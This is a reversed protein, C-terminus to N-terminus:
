ISISKYLLIISNESHFGHNFKDCYSDSYRYWKKNDNDIPCLATYHGYNLGGSHEIVCELKYHSTNNDYESKLDLEEPYIINNYIYEDDVSRGFSIILYKPLTYIFTKTYNENNKCNSCSSNDTKKEKKFMYLIKELKLPSNKNEKALDYISLELMNYANFKILSNGCIKCKKETKLIGYFLDLLFSYGRRLYFKKYFNNYPNKDEENEINLKKTKIEKNGTEWFLGDIFNSIFENADEQHGELYREDLDGMIRKLKQPNIILNDDNSKEIKNLIEKFEIILKGKTSCDENYKNINFIEDKLENIRTLLQLSSNLYCNNGINQFCYIKKRTKKINLDKEQKENKPKKRNSESSINKDNAIQGEKYIEKKNQKPKEEVYSNLQNQNNKKEIFNIYDDFPLKDNDNKLLSEIEEVDNNENRGPFNLGGMNIINILNNNSSIKIDKNLLLNDPSNKQKNENINNKELFYNNIKLINKHGFQNINNTKILKNDNEEQNKIKKNIKYEFKVIKLIENFEKRKDLKKDVKYEFKDIKLTENFKKKKDIKRDKIFKIIEEIFNEPIDDKEILSNIYKIKQKKSDNSNLYKQSNKYDKLYQNVKYDKIKKYEKNTDNEKNNKIQNIKSQNLEKNNTIKNTIKNDILNVLKSAERKEDKILKRNDKNINININKPNEYQEYTIRYRKNQLLPNLEQKKEEKNIFSKRTKNLTNKSKYDLANKSQIEHIQHTNIKVKSQTFINNQNNPIFPFIDNTIKKYRRYNNYYNKQGNIESNQIVKKTLSNELYNKNYSNLFNNNNEFKTEYINKVANSNNFHNIIFRPPKSNNYIRNEKISLKSLAKYYQRM